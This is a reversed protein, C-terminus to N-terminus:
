IGAKERRERATEDADRKPRVHQPPLWNHETLRSRKFTEKPNLMALAKNVATRVLEKDIRILRPTIKDRWAIIAESTRHAVVLEGPTPIKGRYPGCSRSRQRKKRQACVPKADRRSEQRIRQLELNAADLSRKTGDARVEIRGHCADCLPQMGDLTKGRLNADTYRLHHVQMQDSTTNCGFCLRGRKAFVRRRIRRWLDSELYEAYSGFGISRLISNRESYRDM